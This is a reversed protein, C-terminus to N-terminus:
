PQILRKKEFELFCTAFPNKEDAAAWQRSIETWQNLDFEPFYADGKIWAEVITVCLRSARSLTQRYLEAGGIVFPPSEGADRDGSCRIADGITHAIQCGNARFDPERTLVINTRNPLPKGLSEWTRRGMIVPHGVTLSKFHALDRPLRWPLGNELGIVRNRSM